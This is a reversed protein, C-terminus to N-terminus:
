AAARTGLLAPELIARALWSVVPPAVGDGVVKLAATAREPLVYDDPLGMVRAAERPTM